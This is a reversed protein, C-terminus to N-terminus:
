VCAQGRVRQVPWFDVLTNAASKMRSASATTNVCTITPVPHPTNQLVLALSKQHQNQCPQFIFLPYYIWIMFSFIIEQIQHQGPCKELNLWLISYTHQSLVSVVVIVDIVVFQFLLCAL